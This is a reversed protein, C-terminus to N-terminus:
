KERKPRRKFLDRFERVTKVCWYLLMVLGIAFISWTIWDIQM